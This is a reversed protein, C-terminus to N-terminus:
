SSFRFAGYTFPQMGGSPTRHAESTHEILQFDPGLVRALTAPSYRAVPLGSCRAPGDPAFTAIVLTGGQKLTDRVHAIYRARDEPETLFHFAARDHWFDRPRVSWNGTVDAALWGVIAARDGLRSKARTLASESVDLVTLCTLGEEVLRDVLRSDGGGVDLLCSERTLGARHLLALSTTPEPQFWSVAESRRTAYVREWHAHRAPLDPTMHGGDAETRRGGGDGGVARTKGESRASAALYTASRRSRTRTAEVFTEFYGGASPRGRRCSTLPCAGRVTTGPM